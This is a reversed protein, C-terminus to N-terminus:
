ILGYKINTLLTSIYIDKNPQKRAAKKIDLAYM